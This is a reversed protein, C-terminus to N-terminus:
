ELERVIAKVPVKWKGHLGPGSDAEVIAQYYGGNSLSATDAITAQWKGTESSVLTMTAPWSQGGVGSTAGSDVVTVVVSATNTYGMSGPAASSLEVMTLINDNGIYAFEM